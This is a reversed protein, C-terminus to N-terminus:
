LVMSIFEDILHILNTSHGSKCSLQNLRSTLKTNGISLPTRV